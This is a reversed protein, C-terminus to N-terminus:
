AAQKINYTLKSIDLSILTKYKETIFAGGIYENQSISSNNDEVDISLVEIVNDVVIGIKNNDFSFIIISTQKSQNSGDEVNLKKSLNIIPIVEGRLNIIGEQYSPAEPVPSASRYKIVERVDALSSCYIQESVSYVIHKKLEM